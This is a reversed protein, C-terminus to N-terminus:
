QEKGKKILLLRDPSGLGTLATPRDRESDTAPIPERYGPRPPAPETKRDIAAPPFNPDDLFNADIPGDFMVYATCREAVCNDAHLEGAPQHWYSGRRLVSASEESGGEGWHKMAGEILFSHYNYSHTHLRGSGAYDPGYRFLTVSPGSEPDGDLVVIQPGEPLAAVLPRFTRNLADRLPIVTMTANSESAASEGGSQISNTSQVSGMPPSCALSCAIVPLPLIHKRM